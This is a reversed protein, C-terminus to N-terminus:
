DVSWYTADDRKESALSARHSALAQRVKAVFRNMIATASVEIRYDSAIKTAIDRATMPENARRLTDLVARSFQGHRFHAPPKRKLKPRITQPALSPDFVRLAGDISELDARLQVIRKEAQRLEGDLEARKDRLASIVHPEAMGSLYSGLWRIEQPPHAM